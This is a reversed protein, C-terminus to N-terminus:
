MVDCHGFDWMFLNVPFNREKVAVMEKQRRRYSSGLTKAGSSGHSGKKKQEKKTREGKNKGKKRGM